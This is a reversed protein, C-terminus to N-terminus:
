WPPPVRGSRLRRLEILQQVRGDVGHVPLLRDSLSQRGAGSGCDPSITNSASVQAARPALPSLTMRTRELRRGVVDVAHEDALADERGVAAHGRVRGDDCAAHALRAHGTSVADLDVADVLGQRDFTLHIV